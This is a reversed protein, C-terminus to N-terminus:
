ATVLDFPRLEALCSLPFVVGNPHDASSAAVSYGHGVRSPRTLHQIYHCAAQPEGDLATVLRLIAGRKAASDLLPAASAVEKFRLSRSGNVGIPAANSTLVIISDCDEVLLFDTKAESELAIHLAQSWVPQVSRLRLARDSKFRDILARLYTRPIAAGLRQPAQDTHPCEIPPSIWVDLDPGLGTKRQATSAIALQLEKGGLQPLEPMLFPRCWAGSLQVDVDLRRFRSCRLNESIWATLSSLVQGGAVSHEAHLHEGGQCVSWSSSSLYAAISAMETGVWWM